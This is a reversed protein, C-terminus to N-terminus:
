MGEPCKEAFQAQVIRAAMAWLRSRAAPVRMSVAWALARPAVRRRRSTLTGVRRARGWPRGM